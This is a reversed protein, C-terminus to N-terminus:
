SLSLIKEVVLNCWDKDDWLRSRWAEEFIHTPSTICKDFSAFRRFSKMVKREDMQLLADKLCHLIKDDEDLMICVDHQIQSPHNVQCGYCLKTATRSILPKLHIAYSYALDSDLKTFYNAISM